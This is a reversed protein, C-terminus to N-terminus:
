SRRADAQHSARAGAPRACPASAAMIGAASPPRSMRRSRRIGHRSLTQLTEPDEEVGTFVLNGQAGTLDPERKRVAPCLPGACEGADGTLAPASIKAADDYGMFCAIHAVGATATPCAHPDASGRDDAASTGAHASLSLRAEAGDGDQADVRGDASWRTWRMWRPPRACLRSPARGPDTAPDPRLIRDRPHRRAGAQHQPGGGRDRWSRCPRPDAAQHFPHGRHGRFGSPAALHFARHRSLFHAGTEPDGACARAKIMAAREWNQGMAEYYDVAADTSIAVQTAGADPRLRLDVRFVYGDAPPKPWCSSWAACSISRRAARMAASPSPFDEPTTFCWWISTAPITSNLAGYKGMALVTLGTTAELVAGDREAMGAARGDAAASLAPRGRVCADAFRTLAATVENWRGLRRCHRGARHRARRPAQRHASGGHRQAEDDPM